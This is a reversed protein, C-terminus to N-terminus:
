IEEQYIVLRLDAVSFPRLVLIIPALEHYSEVHQHALKHVM